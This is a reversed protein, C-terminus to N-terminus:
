FTMPNILLADIPTPGAAALAELAIAFATDGAGALVAEVATNSACLFDGIAINGNDNSGKLVVTKGAVLVYGYADNNIAEAVMGLKPPDCAHGTLTTCILRELGRESTDNIM